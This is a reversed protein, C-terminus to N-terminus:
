SRPAVRKTAPNIDDKVFLRVSLPFAHRPYPLRGGATSHTERLVRRIDVPSTGALSTRTYEAHRAIRRAFRAYRIPSLAPAFTPPVFLWGFAARLALSALCVGVRGSARRGAEGRM